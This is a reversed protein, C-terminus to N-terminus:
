RDKRLIRRDPTGDPRYGFRALAGPAFRKGIRSELECFLWVLAVALGGVTLLFLLTLHPADLTM